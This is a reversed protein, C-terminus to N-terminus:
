QLVIQGSRYPISITVQDQADYTVDTVFVKVTYNGTPVREMNWWFTYGGSSNRDREFGRAVDMWVDEDTPPISIRQTYTDNGSYSVQWSVSLRLEDTITGNAPALIHIQLGPSSTGEHGDPTDHCFISDADFEIIGVHDDSTTYSIFSRNSIPTILGGHMAKVNYNVRWIQNCNIAGPDWSSLTYNDHDSTIVPEVHASTGNVFTVIASGPIYQTDNMLTGNVTSRTTIIDMTADKSIVDSVSRFIQQYRDALEMSSAARFPQGGTINAINGLTVSDAMGMGITFIIIGEDKAAV